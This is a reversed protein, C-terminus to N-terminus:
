DLDVQQRRSRRPEEEVEADGMEVDGDGDVEGTDKIGLSVKLRSELDDPAGDGYVERVLGVVGKQGIELKGRPGVIWTTVDEGGSNDKIRVVYGQRIMRALVNETTDLPTHEEANLRRLNRMLKENSVTGNSLLICAIVFTVLGMYTAENEESPARSPRVIEPVKYKGPLVSVLVYNGTGKALQVGKQAQARRDRLSVKEKAPLEALRMGFVRTLEDQAAEFITSFKVRASSHRFVHLRLADRKIPTRAHECSLAYRILKKVLTSHTDDGQTDGIMTSDENLTQDPVEDDSEVAAPRRRRQTGAM